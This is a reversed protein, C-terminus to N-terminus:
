RNATALKFNEEWMADVEEMMLNITNDYNKKTFPVDKGNADTIDNVSVCNKDLYIKATTIVDDEVVVEITCNKYDKILSDSYMIFINFNFPRLPNENM